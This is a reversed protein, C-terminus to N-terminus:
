FNKIGMTAGSEENVKLMVGEITFIDEREV